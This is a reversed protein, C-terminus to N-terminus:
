HLTGPNNSIVLFNPSAPVLGTAQNGNQLAYIVGAGNFSLIQFWTDGPRNSTWQSQNLSPTVFIALPTGTNVPYGTQYFASVTRPVDSFWTLQFGNKYLIAGGGPLAALQYDKIDFLAPIGTISSWNTIGSGAIGNPGQPGPGGGFGTPGTGGAGGTQSTVWASGTWTVTQM